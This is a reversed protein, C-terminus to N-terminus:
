AIGFLRNVTKWIAEGPRQRARVYDLSALSVNLSARPPDPRPTRLNALAYSVSLLSVNLEDAIAQM